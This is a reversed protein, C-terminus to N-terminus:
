YDKFFVDLVYNIIIFSIGGQKKKIGVNFEKLLQEHREATNVVLRRKGPVIESTAIEPEQGVEIKKRVKQNVTRIIRSLM